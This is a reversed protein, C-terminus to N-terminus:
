IYIIEIDYCDEYVLPTNHMKNVYADANKEDNWEYANKIDRDLLPLSKSKGATAYFYGGKNKIRCRIIIKKDM